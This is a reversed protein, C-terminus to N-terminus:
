LSALAAKSPPRALMAEPGTDGEDHPVAARPQPTPSTPAQWKPYERRLRALVGRAMARAGGTAYGRALEMLAAPANPSRPYERALRHFALRAAARDGENRSLQALRFLANPAALSNPYLRLLLRWEDATNRARHEQAAREREAYVARGATSLVTRIGDRADGWLLGGPEAEALVQGYGAVAAEWQRLRQRYRAARLRLRCQAKRQTAHHLAALTNQLALDLRRRDEHRRAAAEYCMALRRRTDAVQADSLRPDNSAAQELTTELAKAAQELHGAWQHELGMAYLAAPDKPRQALRREAAERLRWREFVNLTFPTTIVLHEGALQLDGSSIDAGFSRPQTDKWDTWTVHHLIGGTTADLFVLGGGVPLHLVGGGLVPRGVVANPLPREWEVEGKADLCAARTGAVYVCDRHAAVLFRNDERPRRWLLQGSDLAIAYLFDSDTPSVYVTGDAIRPTADQWADNRKLIRRRRTALQDYAVAWQLRGSDAEVAAVVGDGACAVVLGDSVAPLSEFAPRHYGRLDTPEPGRGCIYTRWLRQGDTARLATLHFEEGRRGVRVAAVLHRGAAVPPCAFYGEDLPAALGDAAALLRAAGKGAADLAVMRGDLQPSQRGRLRVMPVPCWVQGEAVTCAWRGDTNEAMSIQPAVNDARQEPAWPWEWRLKGTPLWRSILSTRSPYVMCGDAVSPAIDVTPMYVRDDQWLSVSPPVHSRHVAASTPLSDSWVLRGPRVAVPEHEQSADPLSELRAALEDLPTRKGAVRVADDPEVLAGIRELLSRAADARGLQHLCVAVKAAVSTAPVDSSAGLRVLRRWARMARGYEGRATWRSALYALADDGRSSLPFRSVLTDLAAPDQGASARRWLAEAEKDVQLRYEALGRPPFKALREVAYARIPLYLRPGHRCLENPREDILHQYLRAADGWRGERECRMAEDLVALAKSGEAYDVSVDGTPESQPALASAVPVISELAERLARTVLAARDPPAAGMGWAPAAAGVCAAGVLALVLLWRRM